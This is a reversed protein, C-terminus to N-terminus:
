PLPLSITFQTGADVQSQCHITGHLKQTVLNYVIYMGLGIGGRNRATTFFPDFIKNLHEPPIGCGDDAYHLIVHQEQKLLHFSLQGARNDPYAHTMSNTMLNTLIQSLVGPYSNMSFTEDGEIVCTLKAHELKSKLSQIVDEICTRVVFVRAGITSQDVAVQKFSRVLDAARLLNDLILQSSQAATSLYAELGSRTMRDHQYADRLTRTELELASAATVGIGIPTNITHAIGSVLGSLAAMKETEILQNQTAKLNTLAQSLDENASQLSRTLDRIQLHTSVRALIEEQRFPKTVYDVAGIQFGKVKDETGSLATMFIVPIERSAVRLKLQRCTEFGDIGPMVVDLLILDPHAEVAIQLAREGDMAVLIEFGSDELYDTLMTINASSDDVVLVTHESPNLGPYEHGVESM